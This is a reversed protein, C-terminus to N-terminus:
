FEVNTRIFTKLSEEDDKIQVLCDYENEPSFDLIPKFHRLMYNAQEDTLEFSNIGDKDPVGIEDLRGWSDDNDAIKAPVPEDDDFDFLAINGEADAIFWETDMSHTAPFEKTTKM